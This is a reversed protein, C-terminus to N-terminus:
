QLFEDVQGSGSVAVLLGNAVDNLPLGLESAKTRDVTLQLHPQDFM